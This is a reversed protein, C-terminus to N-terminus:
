ALLLKQSHDLNELFLSFNSNANLFMAFFRMLFILFANCCQLILTVLDIYLLASLEVGLNRHIQAKLVSKLNGLDTSHFTGVVTKLSFCCLANLENWGINKKQSEMFSRFIESKRISDPSISIFIQKFHTLIIWFVESLFLVFYLSVYYIEKIKYLTDFCFLNYM